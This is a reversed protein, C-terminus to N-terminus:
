CMKGAHPVGMEVGWREAKIMKFIKKREENGSMEDDRVWQVAV